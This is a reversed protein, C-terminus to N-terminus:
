EEGGCEVKVWGNRGAGSLKWEGRQKTLLELLEGPLPVARGGPQKLEEGFEAVLM